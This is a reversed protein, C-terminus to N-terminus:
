DFVHTISLSALTRAVVRHGGEPQQRLRAELLARQNQSLRAVRAELSSDNVSDAMSAPCRARQM